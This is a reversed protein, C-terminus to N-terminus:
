DSQIGLDQHASPVCRVTSSPTTSRIQPKFTCESLSEKVLEQAKLERKKEWAAKQPDWGRVGDPVWWWEGENGTERRRDDVLM